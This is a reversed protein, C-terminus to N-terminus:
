IRGYHNRYNDIIHGVLGMINGANIRQAEMKTAIILVAERLDAPVDSPTAGYGAKYTIKIPNVSSYSIAPPEHIVIAPPATYDDLDYKDPALTKEQNDQDKYKITIDEKSTVPTVELPIRTALSPLGMELTRTIMAISCLKEIATRAARIKINFIGDQPDSIGIPYRAQAKFEDLSIPEVDPATIVKYM